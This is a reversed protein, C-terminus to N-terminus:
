LVTGTIAKLQRAVVEEMKGAERESLHEGICAIIKMGKSLAFGVKEGM